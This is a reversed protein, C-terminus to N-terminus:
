IFVELLFSNMEELCMKISKLLNAKDKENRKTYKENGGNRESGALSDKM